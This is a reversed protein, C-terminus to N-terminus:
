KGDSNIRQRRAQADAIIKDAHELLQQETIQSGDQLDASVAATLKRTAATVKAIDDGHLLGALGAILKAAEILKQADM